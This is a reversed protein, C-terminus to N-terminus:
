TAQLYAGSLLVGEGYTECVLDCYWPNGRTDGIYQVSYVLYLGDADKDPKTLEEKSAISTPVRLDTISDNDIKLLTRTKISPNILCRVTVGNITQQPIGIMGTSSNLVIAEKSEPEGAATMDVKGDSISWDCNNTQGFTRLQDKCMGYMVRGRPSTAESFTPTVGKTVNHDKMPNLIESYVDKQSYGAAITKNVFAWNYAEDGEAGIIELYTDTSNERSYIKQRIQGSFIQGFNEEYGAFLFVHIFEKEIKNATEKSVNYLRAVLTKPTQLSSQSIEFRCRLDSLDLGNGDKDGVVIKFKRLWQKAM